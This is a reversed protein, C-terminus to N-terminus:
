SRRLRAEELDIEFEKKRILEESYKKEQRMQALEKRRVEVLELLMLRYKPLFAPQIGDGEQQLLKKNAIEVMREYREKLRTFADVTESEQAYETKM